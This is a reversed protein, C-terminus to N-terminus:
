HAENTLTKHPRHDNMRFIPRPSDPRTHYVVVSIVSSSIAPLNGLKCWTDCIIPGSTVNEPLGNLISLLSFAGDVKDQSIMDVGTAYCEDARKLNGDPLIWTLNFKRVLQIFIEQVIPAM